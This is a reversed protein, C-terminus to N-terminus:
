RGGYIFGTSLRLTNLTKNNSTAKQLYRYTNTITYFLHRYFPLWCVVCFGEGISGCLFIRQDGTSRTLKTILHFLSRHVYFSIIHMMWWAIFSGFSRVCNIVIQFICRWSLIRQLLLPAWAAGVAATTVTCNGKVREAQLRKEINYARSAPICKTAQLPQIWLPIWNQGAAFPSSPLIFHFDSSYVVLTFLIYIAFYRCFLQKIMWDLMWNVMRFM